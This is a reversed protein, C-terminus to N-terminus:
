TGGVMAAVLDSGPLAFGVGWLGLLVIATAMSLVALGRLGPAAGRRRRRPRGTLTEIMTNALGLFGLALLVIAAVAATPHGSAFGGRVVLYESLLLPSPPLAALAGLSLGMAAGLLPLGRGAGVAVHRTSSPQYRNLATASIFGLGKAAAHGAIHVTAGAIALRHGFGIAISIVGMHELSSYALLRKWALPRWLFPVAVALSALGLLIFPRAAVTEGIAPALALKLRWAILLATPLVAASLLASVPAPAESHADPLWNHVPALGAKVALGIVILLYAARTSEVPLGGLSARHIAEFTLSDSAGTQLAVTLTVIGFLALGLGLSTLLLYKWAAELARPRGTFAVLLASAGTTAEVLLWAVALNSALPVALLVGWFALLAAYYDSRFRTARFLRSSAAALYSESMAVSALGVAATSLLLVAGLPDLTLWNHHFSRGPDLFLPVAVAVAAAFTAAAAFRAIVVAVRERGALITVLSALLPVAPVAASLLVRSTM